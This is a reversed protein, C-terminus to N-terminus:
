LTEKIDTFVPKYGANYLDVEVSIAHRSCFNYELPISGLTVRCHKTAVLRCGATDCKKGETGAVVSM